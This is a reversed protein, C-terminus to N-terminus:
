AAPAVAAVSAKGVVFLVFGPHGVADAFALGAVSARDFTCGALVINPMTSPAIPTATPNYAVRDEVTTCIEICGSIGLYDEVLRRLTRACGTCDRQEKVTVALFAVGRFCM